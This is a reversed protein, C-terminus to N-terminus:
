YMNRQRAGWTNNNMQNSQANHFEKQQHPHLQLLFIPKHYCQKILDYNYRHNNKFFNCLM